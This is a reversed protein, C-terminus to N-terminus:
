LNSLDALASVYANTLSNGPATIWVHKGKWLSSELSKVYSVSIPNADFPMQVPIKGDTPSGAVTARLMKPFSSLMEEIKPKMYEFLNDALVQMDQENSM